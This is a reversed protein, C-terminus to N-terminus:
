LAIESGLKQQIEARSLSPFKHVLVEIVWELIQQREARDPIQQQYHYLLAQAREFIVDEKLSLLQLLNLEWSHVGMELPLEDLYILRLRQSELFDQYHIPLGPDYQRQTFLMVARWDNEPMQESLYTFIQAFFNPYVKHDRDLTDQFEIFIIPSDPSPPKLCCLSDTAM